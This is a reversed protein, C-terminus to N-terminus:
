ERSGFNYRQAVREDSIVDFWAQFADEFSSLSYTEYWRVYADCNCKTRSGRRKSGFNTFGRHARRNAALHVADYVASALQESFHWSDLRTAAAVGPTPSSGRSGRLDAAAAGHAFRLALEPNTVSVQPEPFDNVKVAHVRAEFEEEIDMQPQTIPQM